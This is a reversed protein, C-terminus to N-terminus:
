ALVLNPGALASRRVPGSTLVPTRTAERLYVIAEEVCGTLAADVVRAGRQRLSSRETPSAGSKKVEM